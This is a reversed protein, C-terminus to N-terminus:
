KMESVVRTTFQELTEIPILRDIPFRKGDLKYHTFGKPKAWSELM